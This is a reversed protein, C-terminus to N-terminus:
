FQYRFGFNASQQWYGREGYQVAGPVLAADQTTTATTLMFLRYGVFASLQPTIDYGFRGSVAPMMSFVPSSNSGSNSTQAFIGGATTTTGFSNVPPAGNGVSLPIGALLIANTPQTSSLTTAETVGGIKMTELDAGVALKADGEMWYRKWRYDGALGIQPGIFHNSARLLDTTAVDRNVVNVYSPTGPLGLAPDYNVFTDQVSSTGTGIKLRDYLTAYRLGYLMYLSANQTRKVRTRYNGDLTYFGNSEQVGLAGGAENLVIQDYLHVYVAPTTNVYVQTTSLTTPQLINYSGPTGFMNAGPVGLTNASPVLVMAQSGASHSLEFEIAHSHDADLWHGFRLTGSPQVGSGPGIVQQGNIGGTPINQVTFLGIFGPSTPIKSRGTSFDFAPAGSFIGLNDHGNSTSGVGAEFSVWFHRDSEQPQLAPKQPPAPTQPTTTSTTPPAGYQKDYCALRQTPDTISRCDTQAFASVTGLALLVAALVRIAGNWRTSLLAIRVM